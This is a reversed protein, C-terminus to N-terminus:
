YNRVVLLRHDFIPKANFAKNSGILLTLYVAAIQAEIVDFQDPEVLAVILGAICATGLTGYIMARCYKKSTTLLRQEGKRFNKSTHKRVKVAPADLRADLTPRLPRVNWSPQQWKTQPM